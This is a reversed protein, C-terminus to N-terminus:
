AIELAACGWPAGEASLRKWQDVAVSLSPAAGGALVEARFETSVVGFLGSKAMTADASAASRPDDISPSPREDRESV